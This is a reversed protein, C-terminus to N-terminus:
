NILWEGRRQNVCSQTTKWQLPAASARLCCEVFNAYSGNGQDSLVACLLQLALPFASAPKHQLLTHTNINTLKQNSEDFVALSYPLIESFGCCVWLSSDNTINATKTQTASETVPCHSLNQLYSVANSVSLLYSHPLSVEFFLSVISSKIM